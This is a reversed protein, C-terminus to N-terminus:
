VGLPPCWPVALISSESPKNQKHLLRIQPSSISCFLNLGIDWTHSKQRKCHASLNYLPIVSMHYPYNPQCYRDDPWKIFITLKENSLESLDMWNKQRKCVNKFFTISRIDILHIYIKKSEQKGLLECRRKYIDNETNKHTKSDLVGFSCYQYEKGVWEQDSDHCFSTAVCVGTLMGGFTQTKLDIKQIKGKSQSETPINNVFVCSSGDASQMSMVTM